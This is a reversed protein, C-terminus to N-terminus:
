QTQARAKKRQRRQWFNALIFGLVAGRHEGRMQATALALEMEHNNSNPALNPNVGEAKFLESQYHIIEASPLNDPPPPLKDGGSGEASVGQGVMHQELPETATEDLDLPEEETLFIENYLEENSRLHVEHENDKNLPVDVTESTLYEASLDVLLDEKEENDKASEVTKDSEEEAEQNSDSDKPEEKDTEKVKSKSVSLIEKWSDALSTKSEEEESAAELRPASKLSSKKAKKKKKTPETESNLKPGINESVSFGAGPREKDM